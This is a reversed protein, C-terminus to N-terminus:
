KLPLVEELSMSRNEPMQSQPCVHSMIARDVNRYSAVLVRFEAGPMRALRSDCRGREAIMSIASTMSSLGSLEGGELTSEEGSLEGPLVGEGGGSIM